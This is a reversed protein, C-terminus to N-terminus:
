ESVASVSLVTLAEKNIGLKRGNVVLCRPSDVQISPFNIETEKHSVKVKKFLPEPVAVSDGIKMGAGQALNYVTVVVTTRDADIMCFTFPVPDTSSISCVVKGLVVKGTNVKPQLETLRCPTLTVVSGTKSTHQDYGYPGLDRDHLCSLLSEIKRPKMKGKLEIMKQIDLLYNLLETEKTKAEMWSPDLQASVSFGDLAKQYDEQYKYTQMFYQSLLTLEEVFVSNRGVTFV